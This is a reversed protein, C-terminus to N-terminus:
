GEYRWRERTLGIQEDTQTITRVSNVQCFRDFMTQNMILEVALDPDGVSFNFEVYGDERQATIRIFRRTRDFLPRPDQM